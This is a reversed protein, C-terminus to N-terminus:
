NLCVNTTLNLFLVMFPINLPSFLPWLLGILLCKNSWCCLLHEGIDGKVVLSPEACFVLRMNPDTDPRFTDPRSGLTWRGWVKIKRWEASTKIARHSFLFHSFTFSSNLFRHVAGDSIDSWLCHEVMPSWWWCVCVFKSWSESSKKVRM